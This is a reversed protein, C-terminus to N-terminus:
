ESSSQGYKQATEQEYAQQSAEFEPSALIAEIEKGTEEARAKESDLTQQATALIHQNEARDKETIPIEEIPQAAELTTDNTTLDQVFGTMGEIAILQAAQKALAEALPSVSEGPELKEADPIGPQERPVIPQEHSASPKKRNFPNFNM